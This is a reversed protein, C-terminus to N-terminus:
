AAVTAAAKEAKKRERRAKDAAAKKAKREAKKQEEAEAAAKAAAEAAERKVRMQFGRNTEKISNTKIWSGDKLQKRTWDKFLTGDERLVQIRAENGHKEFLSDLTRWMQCPNSIEITEVTEGNITINMSSLHDVTKISKM